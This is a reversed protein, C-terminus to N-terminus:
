KGAYTAVLILLTCLISTTYYYLESLQSHNYTAINKKQFTSIESRRWSIYSCIFVVTGKLQLERKFVVTGKLQLERKFVVTGKLQLERKFVVTGKLQLERKFVVTGKLQLERKFVVTGKLQLERKFVVTGKLQLERKPQKDSVIM